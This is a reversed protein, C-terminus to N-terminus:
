ITIQTLDNSIAIPFMFRSGDACQEMKRLEKPDLIINFPGLLCHNLNVDMIKYTAVADQLDIESRFCECVREDLGCRCGEATKKTRRSVLDSNVTDNSRQCVQQNIISRDSSNRSISWM